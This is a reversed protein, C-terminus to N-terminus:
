PESRAGSAAAWAVLVPAAARLRRLAKIGRPVIGPRWLEHCPGDTVARLV